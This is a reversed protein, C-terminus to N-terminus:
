GWSTAGSSSPSSSVLEGDGHGQLEGQDTVMEQVALDEQVEVLIAGAGGGAPPLALSLLLRFHMAHAIVDAIEMVPAEVYDLEWLHHRHYDAVVPQSVVAVTWIAQDRVDERVLAVLAVPM